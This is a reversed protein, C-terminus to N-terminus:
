KGRGKMAIFAKLLAVSENATLIKSNGFYMSFNWSDSDVDLIGCEAEVEALLQRVQRQLKEIRELKKRPLKM